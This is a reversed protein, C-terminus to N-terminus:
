RGALAAGDSARGGDRARIARRSGAPPGAALPKHEGVPDRDCLHHAPPEGGRRRLGHLGAALPHFHCHQADGVRSPPCEALLLNVFLARSLVNAARLVEAFFLAGLRGSMGPCSNSLAAASTPRSAASREDAANFCNAARFKGDPDGLVLGLGFDCAFSDLRLTGDLPM